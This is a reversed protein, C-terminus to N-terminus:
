LTREVAWAILVCLVVFFAGVWLACGSDVKPDLVGRWTEHPKVEYGERGIGHRLIWNVAEERTDFPGQVYGGHREVHFRQRPEPIM